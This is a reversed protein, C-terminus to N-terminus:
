CSGGLRSPRVAVRGGTPVMWRRLVVPHSLYFARELRKAVDGGVWVLGGVWVFRVSVHPFRGASPTASPLPHVNSPMWAPATTGAPQSCCRTLTGLLGLAESSCPRLQLASAATVDLRILM